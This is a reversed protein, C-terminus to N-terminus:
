NPDQVVTVAYEGGASNLDVTHTPAPPAGQAPNPSPQIGALTRKDAASLTIKRPVIMAGWVGHQTYAVLTGNGLGDCTMSNLQGPAAGALPQGGHDDSDHDGDNYGPSFWSDLCNNAVSTAAQLQNNLERSVARQFALYTVVGVTACPLPPPPPPRPPGVAGRRAPLGDGRPHVVM